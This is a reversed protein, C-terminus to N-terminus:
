GIVDSTIALIMIVKHNFRIFLVAKSPILDIFSMLTVALFHKHLVLRKKHQRSTTILSNMDHGM